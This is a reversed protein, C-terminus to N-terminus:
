VVDGKDVRCIERGGTGGSANTGMRLADCFISQSKDRSDPHNQSKLIAMQGSSM